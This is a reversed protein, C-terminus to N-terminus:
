IPGGFHYMPHAKVIHDPVDMPSLPLHHWRDDDKIDVGAMKFMRFIIGMCYIGCGSGAGTMLVIDEPSKAGSIIAAAVEQATTGTCACIVIEPLIPVMICLQQIKEQNVTEVPFSITFPQSRKNMQVAEETCAERCKGCAVCRNEDVIAKKDVVTIASTPCYKDCQKCGMCKELDLQSVYRVVKM